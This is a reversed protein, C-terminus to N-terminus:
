MTGTISGATQVIDRNQYRCEKSIKRQRLGGILTITMINKGIM